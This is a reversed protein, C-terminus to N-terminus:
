SQAANEFIARALAYDPKGNAMRLSQDTFVIRKPIKYGALSNRLFARLDEPDISLSEPTSAVAQVASGWKPDPTGFVLADEMADHMKIAEEVENPYVKEGGTNICHSGRGLLHITGSADVTCMDGPVAYRVGGIMRFTEATKEEDKYYGLPMPGSRALFGAEGSGPLVETGDEKFVKAQPGINFMASESVGGATMISTGLGMAESSGLADYMAADPMHELFQKKVPTSWLVGSSGVIRVSSVDYDGRELEAALPKAFTDGVISVADVHHKEVLRWHHAADFAKGNDTVVIHGGNCLTTLATYLGAGHMLPTAILPILYPKPDDIHAILEEITAPASKDEIASGLLGMLQQSHPWMVGKPNGTTGGTYLFILDEPSREIGLPATSQNNLLAEFEIAGKIMPAEGGTEVLLTTAKISSSIADVREALRADYVLATSDSNELIYEIEHSLYRFNANVHILRAKLCAALLEIYPAGNFMLFCVKDGEKLGKELLGRALANTRADFERWTLDGTDSSIAFQDARIPAVADLIDGYNLPM